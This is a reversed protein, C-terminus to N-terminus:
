ASAAGFHACHVATAVGVGHEKARSLAARMAHSAIVPGAARMADFTPWPAAKFAANEIDFRLPHDLRHM